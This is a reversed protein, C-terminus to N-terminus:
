DASGCVEFPISSQFGVLWGIFFFSYPTNSIKTGLLASPVGAMWCSVLTLTFCLLDHGINLDVPFFINERM